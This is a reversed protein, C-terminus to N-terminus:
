VCDVDLVVELEVPRRGTGRRVGDEAADDRALVDHQRHRAGRDVVVLPRPRGDAHVADDHLPHRITLIKTATDM